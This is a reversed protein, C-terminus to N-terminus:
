VLALQPSLLFICEMLPVQFSLCYGRIAWGSSLEKSSRIYICHYPWRDDIFPDAQLLKLGDEPVM